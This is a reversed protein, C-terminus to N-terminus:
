LAELIAAVEAPREATALHASVLLSGALAFFTTKKM